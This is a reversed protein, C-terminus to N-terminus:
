NLPKHPGIHDYTDDEDTDNNVTNNKSLINNLNNKLDVPEQYHDETDLTSVRNSNERALNINKEPRSYNVIYMPNNALDNSPRSFSIQNNEVAPFEPIHLESIPTLPEPTFFDDDDIGINHQGSRNALDKKMVKLRKRYYIVVISSILIGLLLLVVVVVIVGTSSQAKQMFGM